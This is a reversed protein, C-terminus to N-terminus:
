DESGGFLDLVTAQAEPPEDAGQAEPEPEADQSAQLAEEHRGLVVGHLLAALEDLGEWDYRPAVGDHVLPAVERIAREPFKDIGVHAGVMAGVMAATTDVDGGPMIALGIAAWVDTPHTMVCYLSWLVSSRAWPSIGDWGSQDGEVCWLCVAKWEEDSAAETGHRRGDFVMKTLDRIDQGFETSFRDVLRAHWNWWGPEHPASTRKSANLCMAVAGAVAVSGAVAMEAKHTIVAQETAAQVLGDVDDWYLLGIPGARMAAGNGARPPPTGSEEWSAGLSLRSAAEATAMGGGVIEDQEFARAIRAAFDEPAWEGEDVISLVLERTLQTDDTYHGFAVGGHHPTVCSFDFKPIFFKAYDKAESSSRREAWAGVADGLACGLICGKFKELSPPTPREEPARKTRTAIERVTM